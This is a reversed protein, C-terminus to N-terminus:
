CCGGRRQKAWSLTGFRVAGSTARSHCHLAWCSRSPRPRRSVTDPSTSMTLTMGISPLGDPELCGDSNYVRQGYVELPQGGLGGSGRRAAGSPGDLNDQNRHRYVKGKVPLFQQFRREGATHAQRRLFDDFPSKFRGATHCARKGIFLQLTATLSNGPHDSKPFLVMEGETGALADLVQDVLAVLISRDTRVRRKSSGSNPRRLRTWATCRLPVRIGPFPERLQVRATPRRPRSHRSCLRVCPGFSHPPAPRM